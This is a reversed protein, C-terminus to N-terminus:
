AASLHQNAAPRVIASNLDFGITELGLVLPAAFEACIEFEVDYAM